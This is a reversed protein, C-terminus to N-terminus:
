SISTALRHLVPNKEPQSYFALLGYKLQVLLSDSIGIFLATAVIQWLFCWLFTKLHKWKGWLKLIKISANSKKHIRYLFDTFFYRDRREEPFHQHWCVTNPFLRNFNLSSGGIKKTSELLGQLSRSKGGSLQGSASLPWAVDNKHFLFNCSKAKSVSNTPWRKFM